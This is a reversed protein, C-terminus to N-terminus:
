APGVQITAKVVDKAAANGNSIAKIRFTALAGPTANAKVKVKMRITRSEKSGLQSIKYTGGEIAATIDPNGATDDFYQVKFPKSAAPAKVTIDDVVNADNQVEILFTNKGGPAVTVNSKQHKGDTDYIADGKGDIVLDPQFQATTIELSGTFNTTAAFVYESANGARTLSTLAGGVAVTGGVQALQLFNANLPIHISTNVDAASVAKSGYIVGSGLDDFIDTRDTGGADLDAISTAVDYITITETPDLSGFGGAPNYLELQAAVVVETSAPIDFVFFNRSDVGQLADWGIVYNSNSPANFGTSQYWGQHLANVVTDAGRAEPPSPLLACCAAALLIAGAAGYRTSVPSIRIRPSPLLSKM